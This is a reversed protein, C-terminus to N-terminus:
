DSILFNNTKIKTRHSFIAILKVVGTYENLESTLLHIPCFLTLWQNIILNM